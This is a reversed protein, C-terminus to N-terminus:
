SISKLAQKVTAFSEITSMDIGSKIITQALDPRLGAAVVHIGMLRLTSGIQHIAEAVQVNITVLGSFDSIVHGVNMDALRPIVNDIIHKIREEDIFGILPLVVIDDKIPVIPASLRTLEKKTEEQYQASLREFAFFTENLSVDLLTNIRKFIFASEKVTLNLDISIDTFLENFIERTPSYRIVIESIKGGASVQMAANKKSWEILPEPVSEEDENVLLDGFFNLLQNYMLIAQEREAESIILDMRRIVNDVIDVPLADINKQIYQSFSYIGNM